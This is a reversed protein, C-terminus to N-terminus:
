ININYKAKQIGNELRGLVSLAVSIHTNNNNNNNSNDDDYDYTMSNVVQHHYNARLHRLPEARRDFSKDLEEVYKEVWRRVESLTSNILTLMLGSVSASNRRGQHRRTVNRVVDAIDDMYHTCALSVERSRKEVLEMELELGKSTVEEVHTVVGRTLEGLRAGGSTVHDIDSRFHFVFMASVGTFTVLLSYFAYFSVYITVFVLHRRPRGESATSRSGPPHYPRTVDDGTIIGPKEQQRRLVTVDCLLRVSLCVVVLMACGTVIKTVDTVHDQVVKSSYAEAAVGGEANGDDGAVTPSRFYTLFLRYARKADDLIVEFSQIAAAQRSHGQSLRQNPTRPVSFTLNFRSPCPMMVDYHFLQEAASRDNVIISLYGPCDSTKGAVYRPISKPV